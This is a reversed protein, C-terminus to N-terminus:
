FRSGLLLWYLSLGKSHRRLALTTGAGARGVPEGAADGLGGVLYGVTALPGFFMNSALGGILTAFYPVVIYYTRSPGDQERALAEYLRDNPGRLVALGVVISVMMGFVCVAVFGGSAQVVVASIFILAHFIKRTYGTRVRMRAKLYGAFSLCSYSWLLALLAGLVVVSADSLEINLGGM